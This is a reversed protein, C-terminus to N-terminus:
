FTTEKKREKLMNQRKQGRRTHKVKQCSSWKTLKTRQTLGSFLGMDRCARFALVVQAFLQYCAYQNM